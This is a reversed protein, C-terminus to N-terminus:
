LIMKLSEATSIHFTSINWSGQYRVWVANGETLTIVTIETLL